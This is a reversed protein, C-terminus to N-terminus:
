AAQPPGAKTNTAAQERRYAFAEVLFFALGGAVLASGMGILVAQARADATVFAMLALVVGGIVLGALIVAAAAFSAGSRSSPEL